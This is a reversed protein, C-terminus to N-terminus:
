ILTVTMLSALYTSYAFYSLEQSMDYTIPSLHFTYLLFSVRNHCLIMYKITM